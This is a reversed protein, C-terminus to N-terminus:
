SKVAQEQYAFAQHKLLGYRGKTLDIRLLFHASGDNDAYSGLAGKFQKRLPAEPDADWVLHTGNEGALYLAFLTATEGDKITPVVEEFMKLFANYDSIFDVHYNKVFPSGIKICMGATFRALSPIKEHSAENSSWTTRAVESLEITISM